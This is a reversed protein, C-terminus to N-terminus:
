PPAQQAACTHCRHTNSTQSDRWAGSKVMADALAKLMNDCDRDEADSARVALRYCGMFRDGRLQARIDVAAAKKWERAKATMVRKGEANQAYAANVSPPLPLILSANRLLKKGTLAPPDDTKSRKFGTGGGQKELTTVPERCNTACRM